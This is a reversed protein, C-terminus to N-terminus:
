AKAPAGDKDAFYRGMLGILHQPDVPKTVYYIAGAKIGEWLDQNDANATLMIVPIDKLEDDAKMANLAEIGDMEPMNVDMVILDPRLSAALEMAERGNTGLTVEYGARKLNMEVLRAINPEDDVVLIKKM